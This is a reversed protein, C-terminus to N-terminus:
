KVIMINRGKRLLMKLHDYLGSKNGGKCIKEMVMENHLHLAM